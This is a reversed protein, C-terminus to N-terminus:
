EKSLPSALIGVMWGLLAATLALLPTIPYDLRFSLFGIFIAVAIATVCSFQMPLPQARFESLFARM